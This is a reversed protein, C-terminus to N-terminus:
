QSGPFGQYFCTTGFIHPLLMLYFVGTPLFCGGLDTASATSPFSSAILLLRPISSLAKVPRLLWPPTGSVHYLLRSIFSSCCCFSSLHLDCWFHVVVCFGGLHDGLCNGDSPTKLNQKQNYVWFFFCKLIYTYFNYSNM